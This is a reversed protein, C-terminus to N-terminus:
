VLSDGFQFQWGPEGQMTSLIRPSHIEWKAVVKTGSTGINTVLYALGKDAWPTSSLTLSFPSGAPADKQTHSPALHCSAGWVPMHPTEWRNKPVVVEMLQFHNEHIPHLLTNGKSIHRDAWSFFPLFLKPHYSIIELFLRMLKIEGKFHTNSLQKRFTDIFHMWYRWLARLEQTIRGSQLETRIVNFCFCCM